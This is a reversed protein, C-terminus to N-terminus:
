ICRFPIETHCSATRGPVSYASEPLLLLTDTDTGHKAQIIGRTTWHSLIVCSDQKAKGLLGPRKGTYHQSIAYLYM